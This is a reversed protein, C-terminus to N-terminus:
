LAADITDEGFSSPEEKKQTSYRFNFATVDRSGYESGRMYLFTSLKSSMVTNEVSSALKLYQCFFNLFAFMDFCCKRGAM